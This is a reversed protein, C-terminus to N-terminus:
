RCHSLMLYNAGSQILNFNINYMYLNIYILVCKVHSYPYVDHLIALSEFSNSMWTSAPYVQRCRHDTQVNHSSLCNLARKDPRRGIHYDATGASDINWQLGCIVVILYFNLVDCKPQLVELLRRCFLLCRDHLIDCVRSSVWTQMCRVMKAHHEMPIGHHEMLRQARGDPKRGVNWDM